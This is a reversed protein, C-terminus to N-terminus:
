GGGSRAPVREWGPRLHPLVNGNWTFNLPTPFHQPRLVVLAYSRDQALTGTGAICTTCSTGTTLGLLNDRDRWCGASRPGTCRSNLTGGPGGWGDQYMLSFVFAGATTLAAGRGEFSSWDYTLTRLNAAVRVRGYVEQFAPPKKDRVAKTAAASLSPSLGRLPPIGRSIRELNVWVLLQQSATLSLFNLPLTFGRLHESAQADNFASLVARNCAARRDADPTACPSGRRYLAAPTPRNHSPNALPHGTAASAPAAVAMLGVAVSLVSLSVLWPPAFRASPSVVLRRPRAM